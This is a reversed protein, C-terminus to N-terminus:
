QNKFLTQVGQSTKDAAKATIDQQLNLQMLDFQVQMADKVSMETEGTDGLIQNVEAVRTERSERMKEMGELIADGLNSPGSVHTSPETRIVEPPATAQAEPAQAKLSEQFQAVDEAQPTEPKQPVESQAMRDTIQQVAQQTTPDIM